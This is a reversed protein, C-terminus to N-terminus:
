LICFPHLTFLIKLFHQSYLLLKRRKAEPLQLNPEYKQGPTSLRHIKRHWLENQPPEFLGTTPASFM